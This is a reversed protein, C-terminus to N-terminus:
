PIRPPRATPYEERRWSALGLQRPRRSDELTLIPSPPGHAFTKSLIVCQGAVFRENQRRRPVWAMGVYIHAMKGENRSGECRDDKATKSTGFCLSRIEGAGIHCAGSGVM